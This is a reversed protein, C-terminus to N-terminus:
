KLISFFGESSKKNGALKNTAKLLDAMMSESKTSHGGENITLDAGPGYLQALIEAEEYPVLEDNRGHFVIAPINKLRDANSLIDEDNAYCYKDFYHLMIRMSALLDDVPIDEIDFDIDGGYVKELDHQLYLRAAPVSITEDDSMIREHYATFVSFPDDDDLDDRVHDIFNKDSAAKSLLANQAPAIIRDKQWLPTASLILSNVTDPYQQAYILALTGGWSSGFIHAKDIDFARFVDHIDHVQHTPTNAELAGKPSSQGCGRQHPVIIRFYKPDFFRQISSSPSGPGGHLCIVPEGDENGYEAAYLEHEGPDFSPTIKTEYIPDTEEYLDM